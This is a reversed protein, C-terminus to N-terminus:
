MSAPVWSRWIDENAALWEEVVEDLDRGEVDIALIMDAQQENTLWQNALLKAAEPHDELLGPNGYNVTIDQPWATALYNDEDYPPQELQVLDLAAHIWHPEWAYFVFPEQRKYAAQMEAWHATESGLEVAHFNDLGAGALRETDECAWAAVPCGVFRGKDGTEVTKFLDVYDKLDSLKKLGPAKADPGEVLYRPVYYGSAGIIGMEGFSVVTGDGGYEKMFKDKSPSYSPWMECAFDIDGASLGEFVAPGQPLTVRKVKYGMEEELIIEMIKCSVQAGTWDAEQATLVGGAIAPAPAGFTLGFAVFTAGVTAALNGTIKM